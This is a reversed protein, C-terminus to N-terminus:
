RVPEQIIGFTQPRDVPGAIWIRAGTMPRLADPLHAIPLSRGDHTVLAYGAGLRELVGDVAATGDSARVAFRTVQFTEPEGPAGWVVVELGALRDLLRRDGLLTVARRGDRQLVAWTGPESGVIAVRGRLSDNTVSAVEEARPVPRAGRTCALTALVCSALLAAPRTV